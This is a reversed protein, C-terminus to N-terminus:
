NNDRARREWRQFCRWDFETAARVQDPYGFHDVWGEREARWRCDWVFDFVHGGTPTHVQVSGVFDSCGSAGRVVVQEIELGPEAHLLQALLRRVKVRPVASEVKVRECPQGNFFALLQAKFEETARSGQVLTDM